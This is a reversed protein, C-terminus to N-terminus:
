RMPCINNFKKCLEVYYDNINNVYFVPVKVNVERDAVVAVAGNLIASDIYDFHDVNFGKTAVFLYNERVNRSDDVIGAIEFDYETDLLENIKM